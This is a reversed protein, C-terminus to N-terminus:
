YAGPKGNGVVKPHTKDTLFDFIAPHNAYKLRYQAIMRKLNTKDTSCRRAEVPEAKCPKTQHSKNVKRKVGGKAAPHRHCQPPGPTPCLCRAPPPQHWAWLQQGFSPRGCLDKGGGDSWVGPHAPSPQRFQVGPIGVTRIWPIPLPPRVVSLHVQRGYPPPLERVQEEQPPFSTPLRYRGPWRKGPLYM